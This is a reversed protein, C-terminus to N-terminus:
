KSKKVWWKALSPLLALQGISAAIGPLLAVSLYTINIVAGGTILTTIIFIIRGTLLGIAVSLYSNLRLQGKLLGIVFGYAFLEAIISPLIAPLPYGSIAYSALPSLAGVLAGGRWGYVLGAIIVPWHMPLLIRVPAGALHAMSPLLVAASILLFQFALSKVSWAALTVPSINIEAPSNKSM